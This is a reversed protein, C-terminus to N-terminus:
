KLIVSKDKNSLSSKLTNFFLKENLHKWLYEKEKKTFSASVIDYVDYIDNIYKKNQHKLISEKENINTSAELQSKHFGSFKYKKDAVNLHNTDLAIVTGLRTNIMFLLCIFFWVTELWVGM